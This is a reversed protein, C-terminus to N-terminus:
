INKIIGLECVAIAGARVGEIFALCETECLAANFDEEEVPANDGRIYKQYFAKSYPENAKTKSEIWNEYILDKVDIHKM